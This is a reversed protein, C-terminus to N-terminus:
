DMQTEMIFIGYVPQSLCCKNIKTRSASFHPMLADDVEQNLFPQGRAAGESSLFFSHRM